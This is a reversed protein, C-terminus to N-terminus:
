FLGMKVYDEEDKPFPDKETWGEMKLDSIIHQRAAKVADDGFIKRVKELGALHHRKRRHRMGCEPSGALADLYLHVDMYPKGFLRLSEACHEEISPM